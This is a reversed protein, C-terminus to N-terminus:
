TDSLLESNRVSNELIEYHKPFVSQMMELLYSIVNQSESVLSPDFGKGTIHSQDNTFKYISTKKNEDFDIQELKKFPSSNDPIMIMLFNDLVKRAINPIHYVSDITGDPSFTLLTKFLYQYESNYNILLKDLVDLKAARKDDIRLNKIMFYAKHGQSNKTNRFWNLVLQLFDYNHTFIFIQACEQVANKLFSFAQFLSNSDLSSIPDDVVVIDNRVNFDRDKLHITFYVFAIATKEGESLNKAIEGNRKLLYGDESNEFVLERRGLFTELQKNIEDCALGSTSIKNKNEDIRKQLAITGVDEPDDPNGNELIDIERELNEINTNFANIVDFEESLYHEKLKEQAEKKARSFNLSKENHKKIFINLADISNTYPKFEFSSSLKLAATTHLKKSEVEEMFKLIQKVLNQKAIELEGAKLSYEEQFEAYLNAKDLIASDQINKLFERLIILLADISEKMKKDAINFYGALIRIREDPLPQDCFECKKSNEKQHLKYGEEVWQSIHPNKQLRSVVTVEVTQKLLSSADVIIKKADKEITGKEFEALASTEQQKLTVLHRDIEQKSLLKKSGLTKFDKAADNKRYNRASVGSVTTGIIKAVNSFRDGRAGENRELEKKKDKLNKLKGADSPIEPNGKLIIEDKKISDALKKNEEGLIYIPNAKCSLIDINQSIYHQNFVRIKKSYSSGEEYEGDATEIKYKLDPFGDLKGNEFASFLQSLTTKGSGNWGYILNFREFRPINSEWRCDNFIGLNKIEVLRKIM